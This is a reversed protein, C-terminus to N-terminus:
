LISTLFAACAVVTYYSWTSDLHYTFLQKLVTQEIILTLHLSKSQKKQM